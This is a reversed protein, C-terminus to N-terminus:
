VLVSQKGTFYNIVSEVAGIPAALKEVLGFIEGRELPNPNCRHATRPVSVQFVCIAAVSPNFDV